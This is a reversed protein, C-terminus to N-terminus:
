IFCFFLFCFYWWIFCVCVCFGAYKKWYLNDDVLHEKFLGNGPTAPSFFPSCSREAFFKHGSLHLAPHHVCKPPPRQKSCLPQKRGLLPSGVHLPTYLYWKRRQVAWHKTKEDAQKFDADGLVACETKAEQVGVRRRWGGGWEGGWGRSRRQQRETSYISTRRKSIPGWQEEM